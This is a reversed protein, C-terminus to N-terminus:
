LKARASDALRAALVTKEEATVAVGSPVVTNKEGEFLMICKGLAEACTDLTENPIYASIYRAYEPAALYDAINAQKRKQFALFAELSQNDKLDRDYLRQEVVNIDEYLYFIYVPYPLKAESFARVGNMDLVLVPCRGEALIRELESKPTGYFNGGYETHELMDGLEVRALFDARDTFIYEDKGVDDARKPRSTASRSLSYKDPRSAILLNALSTKGSGSAGAIVIAYGM